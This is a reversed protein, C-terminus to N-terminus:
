MVFHAFFNSLEGFDDEVEIGFIIFVLGIEFGDDIGVLRLEIGGDTLYSEKDM